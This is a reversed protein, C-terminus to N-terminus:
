PTGLSEISSSCTKVVVPIVEKAKEKAVEKSSDIIQDVVFETVKEVPKDYWEPKKSLTPDSSLSM